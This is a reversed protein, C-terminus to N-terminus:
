HKTTFKQHFKSKAVHTKSLCIGSVLHPFQAAITEKIKSKLKTLLRKLPHCLQAPHPMFKGIYHKSGPFSRLCKLTTPPPIRLIAATKSELPSLGTQNFKYGLWEIETKAIHCKQLYIRLNNKDLKKLCKTVYAM